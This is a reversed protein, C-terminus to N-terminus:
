NLNMRSFRAQGRSRGQNQTQFIRHGHLWLSTKEYIKIKNNIGELPGTSITHDHYALLGFRHSGLKSFKKSCNSILIAPGIM